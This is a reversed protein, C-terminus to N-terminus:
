ERGAAWCDSDIPGDNNTQRAPHVLRRCGFDRDIYEVVASLSPVDEDTLRQDVLADPRLVDLVNAEFAVAGDHALRPAEAEAM